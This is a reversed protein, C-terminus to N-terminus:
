YAGASILLKAIDSYGKGNAYMLATRGDRNRANVNARAGILLRVAEVRGRSSAMMLATESSINDKLNVDAGADILLKMVDTRGFYAALMLPTVGDSKVANADGGSKIYSIVFETNGNVAADFIDTSNKGSSRVDPACNVLLAYPVFSLVAIILVRLVAKKM